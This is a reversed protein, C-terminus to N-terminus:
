SAEEVSACDLASFWPITRSVKLRPTGMDILAGVVTGEVVGEGWAHGYAM